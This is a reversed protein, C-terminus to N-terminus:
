RTSRTVNACTAADLRTVVSPRPETRWLECAPTLEHRGAHACGRALESAEDPGVLHVVGYPALTVTPAVVANSTCVVPATTRREPATVLATAGLVGLTGVGAITAILRRPSWRQM